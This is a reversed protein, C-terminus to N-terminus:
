VEDTGTEGKSAIIIRYNVSQKTWSLLLTQLQAGLTSNAM